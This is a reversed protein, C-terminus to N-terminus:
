KKKKFKVSLLYLGVIDEVEKTLIDILYDDSGLIAVQNKHKIVSKMEEESYIENLSKENTIIIEEILKKLRKRIKENQEM